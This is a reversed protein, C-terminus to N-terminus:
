ISDIYQLYKPVWEKAYERAAVEVPNNYYSDLDIDAPIYNEIGQKYLQLDKYVRLEKNEEINKDNWDVSQVAKHVYAHHTEHLLTDLVDERPMDFMEERISITYYQDSYYGMLTESKYTEVELIVPDIGWYLCELIITDQFLSQKEQDSLETYINEKWLRLTDRNSDWSRGDDSSVITGVTQIDVLDMGTLCYGFMGIMSVITLVSLWRNIGISIIRFKKKQLFNSIIQFIIYLSCIIMFLMLLRATVFGSFFWRLSMVVAMPTLGATLMRVLSRNRCGDPVFWVNLSGTVIYIYLLLIGNHIENLWFYCGLIYKKLMIGLVLTLGIVEISFIASSFENEKFLCNKVRRM